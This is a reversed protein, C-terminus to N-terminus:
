QWDTVQIMQTDSAHETLMQRVRGQWLEGFRQLQGADAQGSAALPMVGRMKDPWPVVSADLAVQVARGTDMRRLGLTGRLPQGYALLNRRSFRGGIGHFGTEAAAGTLLQAVTAMVGTAGADAADAMFVQIEGRVPLEDEGYLARLGAIVMLWTGAVTPCSHGALRVADAYHYTLVGQEAAGLFQALPDRVTLSPAQDYFAPLNEAAAASASM